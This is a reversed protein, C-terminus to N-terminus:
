SPVHFPNFGWDIPMWQMWASDVPALVTWEHKESLQEEIGVQKAFSLFQHVTPGFNAELSATTSAVQDLIGLRGDLRRGPSTNLTETCVTVDRFISLRGNTSGVKTCNRQNAKRPKAQPFEGKEETIEMMSGKTSQEQEEEEVKEIVQSSKQDEDKEVGKAKFLYDELVVILAPAETTWALVRVGNVRFEGQDDIAVSVQEGGLTTWPGGSSAVLEPRLHTGVVIHNLLLQETLKEEGLWRAAERTTLGAPAFITYDSSTEKVDKNLFVFFLSFFLDVDLSATTNRPIAFVPPLLRDPEGVVLGAVFALLLLAVAM